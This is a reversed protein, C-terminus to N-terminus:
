ISIFFPCNPSALSETTKSSCIRVNSLRRRLSLIPVRSSLNIRRIFLAISIEKPNLVYSFLCCKNKSMNDTPCATRASLSASRSKKRSSFYAFSAQYSNIPRHHTQHQRTIATVRLSQWAESNTPSMHNRKRPIRRRRSLIVSFAFNKRKIIGFARATVRLSQRTALARRQHRITRKRSIRRRRFHDLSKSVNKFSM